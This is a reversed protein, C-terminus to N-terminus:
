IYFTVKGLYGMRGHRAVKETCLHYSRITDEIEVEKKKSKASQPELYIAPLSLFTQTEKLLLELHMATM